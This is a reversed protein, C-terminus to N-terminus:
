HALAIKLAVVLLGLGLNTGIAAVSVLFGAREFRAYRVGEAALILLGIGLALWVSATDGLVGLAGLVLAIVPGAAAVVIGLERRAISTLDDRTPRREHRISEALTHAYLHAIWLVIATSAVIVALKWPHKESAYAAALTAMAVVTGYVTGAIAGGAGFALDALARTPTLGNETM